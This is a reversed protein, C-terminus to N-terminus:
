QTTEGEEEVPFPPNDSHLENMKEKITVIDSQATTLNENLTKLQDFIARLLTTDEPVESEFDAPLGLIAFSKEIETVQDAISTVTTDLAYGKAELESATVYNAETLATKTVYTSEALQKHAELESSKAYQQLNANIDGIQAALSKDSVEGIKTNITGLASNIEEIDVANAEIATFADSMGTKQGLDARLGEVLSNLATDQESMASM